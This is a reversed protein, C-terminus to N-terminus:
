SYLFRRTGYVYWEALRKRRSLFAASARVRGALALKKSSGSGNCFQCAITTEEQDQRMLEFIRNQRAQSWKGYHKQVIAPSIGLIDAAEQETAGRGLLETALTHRVRHAHADKVVSKTFM